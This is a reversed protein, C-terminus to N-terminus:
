KGERESQTTAAELIAAWDDPHASAAFQGEAQELTYGGELLEAILRSQEAIEDPTLRRDPDPTTVPASIEVAAAPSKGERTHSSLKPAFRRKLHATLFAPVSSVAGSRTAAHNLEEVIVRALEGWQEREAAKPARGTLKRNAECFISNFNSLAAAEDDTTNTKFSTKPDDSTQKAEGSLGQTGLTSEVMPVSPLFHGTTGQTGQTGMTQSEEPLYVSYENGDHTGDCEIWSVLGTDRLHRLNLFLTKTSGVHSGKMIERRTLRASRAPLIAGRTKAYLYDYIQKSKGKFLGGRMAVRHISNAVKMFDKAPAVPSPVASSTYHGQTGLTSLTQMELSEKIPTPDEAEEQARGMLRGM